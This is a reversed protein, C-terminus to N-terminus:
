DFLDNWFILCITTQQHSGVVYISRDFQHKLQRMLRAILIIAHM